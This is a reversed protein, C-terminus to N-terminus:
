RENAHTLTVMGQRKAVRPRPEAGREFLYSVGLDFQAVNDVYNSDFQNGNFIPLFQADGMLVPDPRLNATIEQAENQQITTRAALLTHNHALAMQIADDLTIKVPGQTPSPTQANAPATWAALCAALILVAFYTTRTRM